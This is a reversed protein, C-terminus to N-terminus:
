TFMVQPEPANSAAFMPAETATEGDKPAETVVDGTQDTGGGMDCYGNTDEVLSNMVDSAVYQSEKFWQDISLPLYRYEVRTSSEDTVQMQKQLHAYWFALGCFLILTLLLNMQQFPINFFFISKM